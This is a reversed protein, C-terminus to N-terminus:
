VSLTMQGTRKPYGQLKALRSICSPSVNFRQAIISHREGKRIMAVAANTEETSLYKKAKRARRPKAVQPVAKEIMLRRGIENLLVDDTLMQALQEQSIGNM